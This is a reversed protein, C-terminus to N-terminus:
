CFSCKWCGCGGDAFQAKVAGPCVTNVKAGDVDDERNPAVGAAAAGSGAGEAGGAGWAGSIM